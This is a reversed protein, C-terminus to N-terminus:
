PAPTWIVETGPCDAAIVLIQDQEAEDLTLDWRLKTATGEAAYRCLASEAPPLWEAPDQAPPGRPRGPRAPRNTCTKPSTTTSTAM